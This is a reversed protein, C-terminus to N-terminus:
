PRPPQATPAWNDRFHVLRFGARIMNRYSPNPAQPTDEGTETAMVRCGADLADAIRRAFLASQGGRGRHSPLTAGLGFWATDGAIHLAAASVPTAGDWGVYTRWGPRHALAVLWPALMAPMEFGGIAAAAFAQAHAPGAETIRLSTAAQPPKERGRIVKAWRSRRVVGAKGAWDAFTADAYPPPQLFFDAAGSARHRQLATAWSQLSVWGFSRNFLAVPMRGAILSAAGPEEIASMGLGAALEAPCARVLDSWGVAEIAEVLHATDGADSSAAVPGPTAPALPPNPINPSRAM